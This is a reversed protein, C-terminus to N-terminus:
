DGKAAALRRPAAPNPETRGNRPVSDLVMLGNLISQPVLFASGHRIGRPTLRLKEDHRLVSSSRRSRAVHAAGALGDRSLTRSDVDVLSPSRRAHPGRAFNCSLRNDKQVSRLPLQCHINSARQTCPLIRGANAPLTAGVTAAVHEVCECGASLARLARRLEGHRPTWDAMLSRWVLPPVRATM